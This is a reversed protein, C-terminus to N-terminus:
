LGHGLRRILYAPLMVARMKEQTIEFPYEVRYLEIRSAAADWIAFSARVDGDRPQGVSGPNALYQKTDELTVSIVGDGDTWPELQVDKTESCSFVHTFHSHGFFTVAARTLAFSEAAHSETMIYDDEHTVAGHVMQVRDTVDIPGVPLNRLYDRNEETLTDRTWYAAARAHSNFDLADDQGCGVRDHNGRVTLANLERVREVAENPQPGYGVIDGCCLVADYGARDARELCAELAEMNSHIDSLLLRRM